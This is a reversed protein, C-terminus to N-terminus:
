NHLDLVYRAIAVNGTEDRAENQDYFNKYDSRDIQEIMPFVLFIM